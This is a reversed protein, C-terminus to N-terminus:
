HISWRRDCSFCTWHVSADETPDEAVVVDVQMSGCSPCDTCGALDVPGPREVPEAPGTGYTLALIFVGYCLGALPGFYLGVPVIAMAFFALIWNRTHSDLLVHSM